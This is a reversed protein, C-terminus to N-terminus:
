QTAAFWSVFAEECGQFPAMGWCLAFGQTWDWVVCWGGKKGLFYFLNQSVLYNRMYKCGFLQM